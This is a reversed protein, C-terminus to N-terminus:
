KAGPHERPVYRPHDQVAARHSSRDTAIGGQTVLDRSPLLESDAEAAVEGVLAPERLETPLVEWVLRDILELTARDYGRTALAGSSVNGVIRLVNILPSAISERGQM